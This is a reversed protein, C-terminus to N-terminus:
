QLTAFLTGELAAIQADVMGYANLEGCRTFALHQAINALAKPDTANELTSILVLLAATPEEGDGCIKETLMNIKDEISDEESLPMESLDITGSADAQRVLRALWPDNTEFRLSYDCSEACRDIVWPLSHGNKLANVITNTRTTRNVHPTEIHAIASSYNAMLKMEKSFTSTGPDITHRLWLDAARKMPPTHVSYYM